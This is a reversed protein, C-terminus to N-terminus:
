EDGVAALVAEASRAERDEAKSPTPLWPQEWRRGKLFNALSPRKDAPTGQALHYAAMRLAGGFVEAPDVDRQQLVWTLAQQDAMPSANPHWCDLAPLRERLSGERAITDLEGELELEVEVELELANCPTARPLPHLVVGTARRRGGKQTTTGGSEPPDEMSHGEKQPTTTDGGGVPPNARRKRSRETATTPAQKEYWFILRFGKCVWTGGGLSEILGAEVLEHLSTKTLELDRRLFWALGVAGMPLKDGVGKTCNAAYMQDHLRYAADSLRNLRFSNLSKAETKFWPRSNKEGDVKMSDPM